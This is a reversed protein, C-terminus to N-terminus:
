DHGLREKAQKWSLSAYEFDESMNDYGDEDEYQECLSYAWVESDKLKIVATRNEKWMDRALGKVKAKFEAEAVSRDEFRWYDGADNNVWSQILYM